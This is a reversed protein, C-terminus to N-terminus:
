KRTGGNYNNRMSYLFENFEKYREYRKSGIKNGVEPKVACDRESIHRCDDFRCEVSLEKIEPYGLIVDRYEYGLDLLDLSTFGPTDTLFKGKYSFLEVHRTTHKGRGLRESIDGVAMLNSGLISNCLTSKGVGSPGAFGILVSEGCADFIEDVSPKNDEYSMFCLVGTKTYDDYLNQAFESDLDCKTFCIIPKINNKGCIILMKDLMKLDPEPDKVAFCLILADVNALPPRVLSNKRPLIKEIVYPVDPDGSEGILVSDGVAPTLGTKRIGGRIQCLYSVGNSAGVTYTGGIGKTIVGQIKDEM